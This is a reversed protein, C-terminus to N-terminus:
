SDMFLELFDQDEQIATKIHDVTIMPNKPIIDLCEAIIYEYLVLQAQTFSGGDRICKDIALKACQALEQSMNNNIWETLDDVSSLHSVKNCFINMLEQIYEVCSADLVINLKLEQVINQIEIDTVIYLM